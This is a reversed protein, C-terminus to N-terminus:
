PAIPALRRVEKQKQLQIPMYVALYGLCTFPVLFILAPVRHIEFTVYTSVAMGIATGVCTGFVLWRAERLEPTRAAVVVLLGPALVDGHGYTFMPDCFLSFECPIELVLPTNAIGRMFEPIWGTWFVHIADYVASAILLCTATRIRLGRFWVLPPVALAYTGIGRVLWNPHSLILFLYTVTVVTALGVGFAGLVIRTGIRADPLRPWFLRATYGSAMGTLVAITLTWPQGLQSLRIGCLLALTIAPITVVFLFAYWAWRREGGIRSRLTAYIAVTLPSTRLRRCAFGVFAYFIVSALIWLAGILIHLYM